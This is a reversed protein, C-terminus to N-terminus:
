ADFARVKEALERMEKASGGDGKRAFPSFITKKIEGRCSLCSSRQEGTLASRVICPVLVRTGNGLTGNPNLVAFLWANLM